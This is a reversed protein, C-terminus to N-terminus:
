WGRISYDIVRVPQRDLNDEYIITLARFRATNIKAEVEVTIMGNETNSWQRVLRYDGYDGQAFTEALELVIARITLLSM